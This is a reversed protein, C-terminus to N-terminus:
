PATVSDSTEVNLSQNYTGGSVSVNTVTVTFTGGNKVKKSELVVVGAGDTIGSGTSSAAGSWSVSVTANPVVAGSDDKVTITAIGSYRNGGYSGASMAIDAIYIDAPGASVTINFDQQSQAGGDNTFTATYTGGDAVTVNNLTIERSTSTYGNPGSWSWTGGTLPQPGLAIVDGEVLSADSVGEQWGTWNINIWPTIPTSAVQTTANVEVSDDSEGGTNVASVVYYYTTDASLGTDSFSTGAPSAITTYPGGSTGGRKVNYSDAGSSAGWSLDIQTESAASASLAAPADPPTTGPGVNALAAIAAAGLAYDYIRFDDIQGNFLPDPWQSKGIYNNQQGTGFLDSPNLDIFGAVKPTGDIYLIATNSNLTLAVHVWQGVPLADTILSQEEQYSGTTISFDMLGQDSSPTLFMYTDTDVGFDFIRQWANGGDWNVWAAITIEDSNCVDNPLDVYDDAGDLDIAQGDQGATYAPSGSTTGNFSGTSDSANGEFDYQAIPTGSGAPDALVFQWQQSNGGTLGWQQVNSGAPDDEVYFNSHGNRIYFYGTTANDIYWYQNFGGGFTWQAINGGNSLSWGYLDLSQGSNANIITYYGDRGRTIDWKQNLADTDTGTQVNAGDSTSANAVELVDGSDRNVIKWRHGDLAPISPTADINFYGGQQDLWTPYMFERIPGIGNFYLDQDTSVFRFSNMPGYYEVGGAFGYVEGDPGRYVAAASSNGFNEAYGLRKGQVANVLIGRPRAASGWWIGGVMGYECGWLVEAMSHFEPNYPIDGKSIVNQIFSVYNASNGWGIHHTSGHTLPGHVQDYWWNASDCSLTSPGHLEIGDFFPDAVILNLIDLMNQPTGQGAWWDPENYVELAVIPHNPGIYNITAKLLDVMMSPIFNGNGDLYGPNAGSGTSPTIAIPVNPGVMEALALQNDLQATSNPGLQGGSLLEDTFFNLRVVDIQNLGMHAICQRMNDASPWATDAGWETMAKTQGPDTYSFYITQAQTSAALLLGLSLGLLSRKFAGQSGHSRSDKLRWQAPSTGNMAKAILGRLM